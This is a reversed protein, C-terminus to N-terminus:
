ENNVAEWLEDFNAEIHAMAADLNKLEQDCDCLWWTEDHNQPEIAGCKDCESRNNKLHKM